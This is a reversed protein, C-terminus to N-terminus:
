AVLDLDLGFQLFALDLDELTVEGDGNLDGDEWTAGTLGLNANIVDLDDSDIDYDGDLDALAWIDQLNAGM